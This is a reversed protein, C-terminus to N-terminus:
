CRGRAFPLLSRGDLPKGPRARAIPVITPALDINGVLEQSERGLSDGTRAAAAAGPHIARLARGARPVDHEGQVCGNDSTLFVYTDDLEGRRRLADVIAEVAEDVALLSEQSDQHRVAIYRVTATTLPGNDRVFAPQDGIDREGFAPSAPPPDPALAGVHRPPAQGSARHRRSDRRGRPVPGPVGGVPLFPAAFAGSARHLRGGQRPLRETQYLRPDEDFPSGYTHRNGNENLTDGCMRYTSDDV